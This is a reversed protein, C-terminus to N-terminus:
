RRNNRLSGPSARVISASSGTGRLVLRVTTFRQQGLGSGMTRDLQVIVDVEVTDGNEAVRTPAGSLQARHESTRSSFFGGLDGTRFEGANLRTAYSAALRQVDAETPVAPAAPTPAVPEPRAAPPPAATAVSDIAPTTVRSGSGAAQGARAQPNAPERSPTSRAAARDAASPSASPPPTSATRRQTTAPPVVAPTTTPQRPPSGASPDGGDVPANEAAVVNDLQTDEVQAGGGTGAGAATVGGGLDRGGSVDGDAVATTPGGNGSEDEAPASGGGGGVVIAAVAAIAVVALGGWLLAPSRGSQTAAPAAIDGTAHPSAAPATRAAMSSSAVSPSAVSPSSVSPALPPTSSPVAGVAGGSMVATAGGLAGPTNAADPFSPAPPAPPATAPPATAPAVPSRVRLSATAWPERISTVQGDSADPIVRIKATGAARARLALPQPEVEVIEPADSVVRLGDASRALGSVDKVTLTLSVMAGVDVDASSLSLTVAGVPAERVEVRTSGQVGGVRAIITAVGGSLAMITGREDVHVVDPKSSTWQVDADPLPQGSADYVEASLLMAEGCELSQEDHPIRVRGAQQSTVDVQVVAQVTGTAGSPNAVEARLTVSGARVGTAIGEPSITAVATDSSSWTVAADGITAGTSSQVVARLALTGGVAVQGHPPSISIAAPVPGTRKRSGSTWAPTNPAMAGWAEVSEARAVQLATAIEALGARTDSGDISLGEGLLPLVADLSPFRDATKKSLMRAIAEALSAPCDPRLERVDPPTTSGHAAILQYLDGSFPPAGTLLEYAAVGLAYQDAAGSMPEAGSFQEPSMYTPTGIAMGSKTLGEADAAKAIGFDTVVVEGKMTVLINAPKVDRHVIGEGHAYALARATQWLIWQAQDLPLKKEKQALRRVVEDLSGGEVLRMVFFILDDDHQVEHVVIINHHQLQAAIRAEQLFREAMGPTFSLRPEMVKIAVKRGLRMDTAIYVIAMGGRGIEGAVDYLGATAVRLRELLADSSETEGQAFFNTVVACAVHPSRPSTHARARVRALM